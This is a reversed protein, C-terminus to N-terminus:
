TVIGETEPNGLRGGFPGARATRGDTTVADDIRRELGAVDRVIGRTRAEAAGVAQGTQTREAAVGRDIRAFGAVRLAIETAAGFAARVRTRAGDAAVARHLPRDFVALRGPHGAVA